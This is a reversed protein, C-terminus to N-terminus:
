HTNRTLRFSAAVVTLASIAGVASWLLLRSASNLSARVLGRPITVGALHINLVAFIAFAILTCVLAIGGPLMRRWPFPIPPPASTEEYIADMVTIVFGSAPTLQADSENFHAGLKADFLNLEPDIQASPKM